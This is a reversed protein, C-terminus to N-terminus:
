DEIEYNFVYWFSALLELLFRSKFLEFLRFINMNTKLHIIHIGNISFFFPCCYIIFLYILVRLSVIHCPMFVILVLVFVEQLVTANYGRFLRYDEGLLSYMVAKIWCWLSFVYVTLVTGFYMRSLLLRSMITNYVINPPMSISFTGFVHNSNSLIMFM